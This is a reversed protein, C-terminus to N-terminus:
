LTKARIQGKKLVGMYKSFLFMNHFFIIELVVQTMTLIENLAHMIPYCDFEPAYYSLCKQISLFLM